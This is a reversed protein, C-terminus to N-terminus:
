RLELSHVAADLQNLDPKFSKPTAGALAANAKRQLAEWVKRDNILLAKQQDSLQFPADLDEIDVWLWIFYKGDNSIAAFVYMLPNELEHEEQSYQAIRRLGRWSKGDVRELSGWHALFADDLSLFPPTVAVALPSTDRELQALDGDGVWSPNARKLGELSM